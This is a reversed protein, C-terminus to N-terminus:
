AGREGSDALARLVLRVAAQQADTRALAAWQSCVALASALDAAQTSIWDLLGLAEVRVGHPARYSMVLAEMSPYHRLLDLTM